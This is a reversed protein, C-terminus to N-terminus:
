SLVHPLYRMGLDTIVPSDCETMGIAVAKGDVVWAGTSAWPGRGEGAPRPLYHLDQFVRACSGAPGQTVLNRSPQRRDCLAIGQGLISFLPKSVFGDADALPAPEFFTALLNRHGRNFRWLWALSGKSSLVLSWMPSAIRPGLAAIRSSLTTDELLRDWRFGKIVRAEAGDAMLASLFAEVSAYNRRDCDIGAGDLIRFLAYQWLADYPDGDLSSLRIPRTGMRSVARVTAGELDAFQLAAADISAHDKQYTLWAKQFMATEYVLGVVDINCEHLKPASRGDFSLDFRSFLVPDSREWSERVTDWALSPIGLSTLIEEDAVATGVFDTCMAWLEEVAPVLIREIAEGEVEYYHDLGWYDPNASQQEVATPLLAHLPPHEACALRRM